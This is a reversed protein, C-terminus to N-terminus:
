KGQEKAEAAVEARLRANEAELELVRDTTSNSAIIDHELEAQALAELLAALEARAENISRHYKNCHFCHSILHEIASISLKKPESM